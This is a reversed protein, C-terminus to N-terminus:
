ARAHGRIAQATTYSEFPEPWKPTGKWVTLFARQVAQINDLRRRIDDDHLAGPHSEFARWYVADAWEQHGFLDSLYELMPGRIMGTGSWRSKL